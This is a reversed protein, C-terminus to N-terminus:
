QAEPPQPAAALMAEYADGYEREEAELWRATAVKYAADGEAQMVASAMMARTPEVPVLKWGQPVVPARRAAQWATWAADVNGASYGGDPLQRCWWGDELRQTERVWAEFEARETNSM